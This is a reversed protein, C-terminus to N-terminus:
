IILDWFLVMDEDTLFDSQKQPHNMTPYTWQHLCLFFPSCELSMGENNFSITARSSNIPYPYFPEGADSILMQM